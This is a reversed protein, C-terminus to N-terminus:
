VHDLEEPHPIRGLGEVHSLRMAAIIERPRRLEHIGLPGFMRLLKKRLIKGQQDLDTLVAVQNLDQLSEVVSLLSGGTNLATVDTFGLSTLAAKDKRGEVIAPKNRYEILEELLREREDM